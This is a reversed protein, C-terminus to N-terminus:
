GTYLLTKPTPWFGQQVHDYIPQEIMGQNVDGFISKARDFFQTDDSAATTSTAAEVELRGLLLPFL